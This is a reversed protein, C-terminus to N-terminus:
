WGNPKIAVLIQAQIIYDGDASGLIANFIEESIDETVELIEKVM